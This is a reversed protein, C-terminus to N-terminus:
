PWSEATGRTSRAFESRACSSTRARSSSGAARVCPDPTSTATGSARRRAASSARTARRDGPQERHVAVGVDCPSPERQRRDTEHERVHRVVEHVVQEVELDPGVALLVRAVQVRRVRHQRTHHRAALERRVRQDDVDSHRAIMITSVTARPSASRRTRARRSGATPRTCRVVAAASSARGRRASRARRTPVASPRRCTSRPSRDSGRRPSGRTAATRAATCWPASPCACRCSGTPRVRRCACVAPAGRRTARGRPSSPSTRRAEVRRDDREHDRLHQGNGDSSTNADSGIMTRVHFAYESGFGSTDGTGFGTHGNHNAAADNRTVRRAPPRNTSPNIAPAMRPQYRVRDLARRM